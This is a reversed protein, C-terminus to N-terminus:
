GTRRHDHERAQGDQRGAGSEVDGECAHVGVYAEGDACRRFGHVFGEPKGFENFTCEPRQL